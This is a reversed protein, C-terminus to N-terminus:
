YFLLGVNAGWTDASGTGTYYYANGEHVYRYQYGASFTMAISESIALNAGAQVGGGVSLVASSGGGGSIFDAGLGLAPGIWLRFDERRVIGFGFSNNVAVGNLSSILDPSDFTHAYGVDLRYNFIGEGLPNTDLVFGAGIRNGSLDNEYDMDASFGSYEISAGLGVADSPKAGTHMLLVIASFILSVQRNKMMEKPMGEQRDSSSDPM